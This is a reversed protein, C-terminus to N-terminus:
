WNKLTYGSFPVSKSQASEFRILLSDPLFKAALRLNQSENDIFAGIQVAPEATIEQILNMKYIADEDSPDKKMLLKIRKNDVNIGHKRLSDITGDKMSSKPNSHRGTILWIEYGLTLIREISKHANQISKDHLLYEQQLFLRLFEERINSEDNESVNVHDLLCYITKYNLESQEPIRHIAYQKKLERNIIERQRPLNNLICGDIDLLVVNIKDPDHMFTLKNILTTFRITENKKQTEQNYVSETM